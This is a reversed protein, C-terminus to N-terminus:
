SAGQSTWPLADGSRMAAIVSERLREVPPTSLIGDRMTWVTDLREAIRPDHTSIIIATGIEALMALLTALVETATVSDLQGTPEDALVLAPRTVMARAITVRQAQGGSIEEPLKDCLHELGFRALMAEAAELAVRDSWDQLLLPLSVNEIVSLPPLLSPGQFVDVVKGPRLQARSGLAPWTITGATPDDLGGILHLFTSKGSGSPGILAIRDGPFITCTAGRLADTAAPGSGFRRLLGNATVLPEVM